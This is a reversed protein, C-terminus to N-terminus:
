QGGRLEAIQARLDAIIAKHSARSKSLRERTADLERDLAHAKVRYATMLRNAEECRQRLSEITADREAICPFGSEADVARAHMSRAQAIVEAATAELVRALHPDLGPLPGDIVAALALRFKRASDELASSTPPHEM